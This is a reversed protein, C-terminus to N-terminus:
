SVPAFAARVKGDTILKLETVLEMKRVVFGLIIYIIDFLPWKKKV